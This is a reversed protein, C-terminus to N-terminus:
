PWCMSRPRMCTMYSKHLLWLHLNTTKTRAGKEPIILSCFVFGTCLYQYQYQDQRDRTVQFEKSTFKWECIWYLRVQNPLVPGYQQFLDSYISGYVGVRNLLLFRYQWVSHLVHVLAKGSTQHVKWVTKEEFSLLLKRILWDKIRLEWIQVMTEAIM